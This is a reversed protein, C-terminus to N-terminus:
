MFMEEEVEALLEGMVDLSSDNEVSLEIARKLVVKAEDQKGLIQLAKAMAFHIYPSEPLLELARELHPIAKNAAGAAIYANALSFHADVNEPDALIAKKFFKLMAGYDSEAQELHYIYSGFATQGLATYVGPYAPSRELLAMHERAAEEYRELMALAIGLNYRGSLHGDDLKVCDELLNVCREIDGVAMADMGAKFYRDADKQIPAGCACCDLLEEECEMGCEICHM